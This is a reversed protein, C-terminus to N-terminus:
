DPHQSLMHAKLHQNQVGGQANATKMLFSLLNTPDSGRRSTFFGTNTTRLICCHTEQNHQHKHKHQFPQTPNVKSHLDPDSRFINRHIDLRSPCSTRVSPRLLHRRSRPEDYEIQKKRCQSMHLSARKHVTHELIRGRRQIHAHNQVSLDHAELQLWQQHDLQHFQLTGHNSHKTIGPNDTQYPSTTHLSKSTCVVQHQSDHDRIPFQLHVQVPM